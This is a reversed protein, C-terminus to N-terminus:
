SSSAEWAASGCAVCAHQHAFKEAESFIDYGCMWQRSEPTRVDEGPVADPRQKAKFGEEGLQALEEKWRKTMSSWLDDRETQEPGDPLSMWSQNGYSVRRMHEVRSMRFDQWAHMLGPLMAPSRAHKVFVSLAAADELAMAAGQGGHPVMAHAADGLLVVKGSDGVYSTVGQVEALTWKVTETVRDWVKRVVPSFGQVMDRAEQM